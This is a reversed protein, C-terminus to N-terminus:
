VLTWGESGRARVWDVVPSDKSVGLLGESFNALAVRNVRGAETGLGTVRELLSQFILAFLIKLILCNTNAKSSHLM